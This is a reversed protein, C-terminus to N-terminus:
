EKNVIQLTQHPNFGPPLRRYIQDRIGEIDVARAVASRELMRDTHSHWHPYDGNMDLGVRNGWRYFVLLYPDVISYAAGLAWTGGALKAEIVDYSKALARIGEASVAPYHTEGEIFRHPSWIQAISTAHVSGALWSMWEMCRALALGGEPALALTPKSRALHLLIASAETLIEGDVELVPVKGKPNIALFEPSQTKREPISVLQLSFPEGLEELIIHPALSCAGPSYYLKIKGESHRKM